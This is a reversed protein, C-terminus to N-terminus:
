LSLVKKTNLSEKRYTRPTQFQSSNNDGEDTMVLVTTSPGPGEPNFVQLSVLYQTYTELNQITHSEVSPDRIYIEKIGDPGRDRPRYSIRYGLFEGHITDHHPPRWSIHLASASTNHATTITPKGTPVERLTVMYYSEKSPSSAGMENVALVRFSYVTYPHLGVVQFNTKNDPTLIAEAVNWSGDEGVRTHVIYHTVVSHHTDQSPAWSLNVSRSTFSMILPRGPPDPIDQVILRVLVDPKPRNNVLCIYDGSDEALAPHFSLGFSDSLLSIRNQNVWVTTSDSMYEVLSLHGTLSLWELELVLSHENVGPCSISKDEGAKIVISHVPLGTVDYIRKVGGGTVVGITYSNVNTLLVLIIYLKSWM